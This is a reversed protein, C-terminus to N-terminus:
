CAKGRTAVSSSGLSRKASCSFSASLRVSVNKERLRSRRLGSAAVTSNNPSFKGALIFARLDVGVTVLAVRNPSAGAGRERWWWRLIERRNALQLEFLRQAQKNTKREVDRKDKVPPASRRRQLADADGTRPSPHIKPSPKDHKM